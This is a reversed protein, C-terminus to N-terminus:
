CQSTQFHRNRVSCQNIEKKCFPNFMNHNEPWHLVSIPFDCNLFWLNVSFQLIAQFKWWRAFVSSLSYQRLCTKVTGLSPMCMHTQHLWSWMTTVVNQSITVVNQSIWNIIPPPSNQLHNQGFEPPPVWLHGFVLFFPPTRWKQGVNLTFTIHM